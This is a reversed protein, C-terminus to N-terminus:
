SDALVAAVMRQIGSAIRNELKDTLKLLPLLAQFNTSKSEKLTRMNLLIGTPSFKCLIRSKVSISKGFLYPM